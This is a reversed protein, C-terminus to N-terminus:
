FARGLRVFVALGNQAGAGGPDRTWAAGSALTVAYSYGLTLDLAFEAGVSTRVNRWAPKSEWATGADVFVAAHLTNFFIPRTGSGRELLALPFRYDLNVVAARSGSAVDDALGRLMGIAHRGFDLSSGAQNGGLSFQRSVYRDGSAAGGAARLAIVAHPRGGPLYARIDFTVARASGDAGLAPSVQEYTARATLGQEPSVSYGFLRATNLAWGLRFANRSSVNTSTATRLTSQIADVSALVSQAWRTRRWVVQIGAAMERSQEEVDQPARGRALVQDFWPTTSDSISLFFAPRWRDYVYSASWDPRRRTRGPGLDAMRTVPWVIDAAYTHYGLVDGGAVAAGIQWRSGDSLIRPEWSRPALTAWPSYSRADGLEAGGGAGRESPASEPSRQSDGAIVADECISASPLPAAFLDYGRDTQGVFVVTRGDGTIDPSVAGGAVTVIRTAPGATAPDGDQVQVRYMQFPEGSRAASFVVFRGDPTWCPTVNRAERSRVAVSLSGTAANILVIESTGDVLQREAVLTYVDPSWRPALFQADPEGVLLLPQFALAPTGDQGHPERLPLVAVSRRGSETIVVALRTADPSVDPSSARKGRTLRVTRGTTRNRAYVDSFVSVAGSVELQDFYVWGASASASDGRYRDGIREAPGGELGVKYFAPFSDPTQVSYWVSESPEAGSARVIRPGSVFYGHTTLRRIQGLFAPPRRAAEVQERTFDSWLGPADTGFVEKFAGGGLLPLRRATKRALEGLSPEGFRNSLYNTFFGGYLYPASGAPWAVLGGAVRDISEFRGARAALEMASAFDGAKIRGRNTVASEAYTALGEIQWLPLFLNPFAPPTRGFVSRVARLIGGTQDLHLIHTYEHTFVLRLWDDSNGLASSAPPPIATIEITNFPVPTAWGNSTDTQDVLIVHTHEPPTLGLRAALRARTEEVILALRKAYADEGQHFYITFHPTSIVRFRLRPEYRSASGALSAALLLALIALAPIRGHAM